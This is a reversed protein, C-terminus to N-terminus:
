QKRIETRGTTRVWKLIGYKKSIWIEGYYIIEPWDVKLNFTLCKDYTLNDIVLSKINFDYLITTKTRDKIIISDKKSITPPIYNKFDSFKLKGIENLKYIPALYTTDGQFTMASFLFHNQGISPNNQLTDKPEIVFVIKRNDVIVSKYIVNFVDKVTDRNNFPMQAPMNKDLPRPDPVKRTIKENGIVWSSNYKQVQNEQVKFYESIKITRCSVLISLAFVTFFIKTIM